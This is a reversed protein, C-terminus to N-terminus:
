YPIHHKGHNTFIDQDFTMNRPDKYPTHVVTGTKDIVNTDFWTADLYLTEGRYKLTVWAHNQGSVKVVASVGDIDAELLRGILLDAYDDCVGRLPAPSVFRVRRGVRNYDYDMDEACSLLIDYVKKLSPDRKMENLKAQSVAIDDYRDLSCNGELHQHYSPQLRWKHVSNPSAPYFANGAAPTRDYSTVSSLILSGDSKFDFIFKNIKFNIFKSSVGSSIMQYEADILYDILHNGCIDKFGYPLGTLEVPINKYANENVAEAPANPDGPEAPLSEQASGPPFAIFFLAAALCFIKINM